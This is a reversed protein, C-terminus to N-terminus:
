HKPNGGNGGDDEAVKREPEEGLRKAKELLIATNGVSSEPPTNAAPLEGSARPARSRQYDAGKRHFM